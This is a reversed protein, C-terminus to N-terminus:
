GQCPVARFKRDSLAPKYGAAFRSPDAQPGRSKVPSVPTELRAVRLRRKTGGLLNEDTPPRPVRTPPALPECGIVSESRRPNATPARGCRTGAWREASTCKTHPAWENGRHFEPHIRR